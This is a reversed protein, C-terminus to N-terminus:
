KTLYVKKHQMQIRSVLEEREHEVVMGASRGCGSMNIAAPVARVLCSVFNNGHVLLVM